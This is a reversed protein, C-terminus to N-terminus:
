DNFSNSIEIRRQRAKKWKEFRVDYVAILEPVAKKIKGHIDDLKKRAAIEAKSAKYFDERRYKAM